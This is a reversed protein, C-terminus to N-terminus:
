VHVLDFRSASGEMPRTRLNREFRSALERRADLFHRSPKRAAGHSFPWMHQSSAVYTARALNGMMWMGPWLGGVDFRGPLKARIELVGGTFCFKNWGQVMASRYHKRVKVTVHKKRKIQKSEFRTDESTTTLNLM